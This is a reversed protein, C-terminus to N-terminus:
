VVHAKKITRSRSRALSVSQRGAAYPSLQLRGLRLRLEDRYVRVRAGRNHRM